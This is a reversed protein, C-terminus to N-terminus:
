RASAPAESAQWLTVLAGTPDTILALSGQPLDMRGRVLTAGLATARVGPDPDEVAVVQQVWREIESSM